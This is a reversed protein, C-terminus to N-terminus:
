PCGGGECVGGVYCYRGSPKGTKKGPCDALCSVTGDRGDCSEDADCIGNGCDNPSSCDPDDGSACDPNCYGDASCDPPVTCDPDDGSACDPNCYGDASCDPPVTCDPDDGSACDPNCFGDASCDPPPTGIFSSVWGDFADVRTSVGYITCYSDGYSTIGGVYPVGERYAFAPGGSDGFCPGAINQVYSIQTAADGPDPCGAINCGLSGLTVDVQLKVGSTGLETEGFGAINVISGVDAQTFGLTAPLYPVPAIAETYATRLRVLAIDNRLAIRDYNPHILTEDVMYLHDLIDQSPDDGVYIALKDPAMTKFEAKNRRQTDLCHAATAVVDASILTGSCFPSVYVSSGGKALGHLGVVADHEPANPPDGNYIPRVIVGFEGEGDIVETVKTNYEGCGFLAALAFVLLLREVKAIM